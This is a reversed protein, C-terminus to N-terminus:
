ESSQGAPRAPPTSTAPATTSSCSRNQPLGLDATVHEFVDRDPKLLGIQHSLYTVDFMTGLKFRDAQDNWHLSNTNSLCRVRRSRRVRAVLDAAGDFLLEPWARFRELFYTETIPLQWTDVIGAAFEQATCRGREFDRVWPCTLWRHWM